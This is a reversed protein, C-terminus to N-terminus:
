GNCYGVRGRRALVAGRGREGRPHAVLRKVVQPFFVISPAGGGRGAAGTASDPTSPPQLPQYRTPSDGSVAASRGFRLFESFGGKVLRRFDLLNFANCSTGPPRFVLFDDGGVGQGLPELTTSQLVSRPPRTFSAPHSNLLPGAARAINQFGPDQSHKQLSRGTTSTLRPCCTRRTWVSVRSLFTFNRVSAFVQLLRTNRERLATQIRM